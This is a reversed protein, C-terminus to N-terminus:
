ARPEPLFSAAGAAFQVPNLIHLGQPRSKRALDLLARDKSLLVQAGSSCALDLFKQDDPDRCIWPAPRLAGAHEQALTTWDQLRAQAQEPTCRKQFHPRALVAQLEADTRSCRVARALGARLAADLVASQPDAFVYLDLWINTDLVLLPVGAPATRPPAPLPAPEAADGASNGPPFAAAVIGPLREPRSCSACCSLCSAGM